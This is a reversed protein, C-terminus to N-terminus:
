SPDRSSSEAPGEGDLAEDEQSPDDTDGVDLLAAAEPDEALQALRSRLAARREPSRLAQDAVPEMLVLLLEFAERSFTSRVVHLDFELEDEFKPPLALVSDRDGKLLAMAVDARRRGEGFSVQVGTPLAAKLIAAQARMIRQQRREAGAHDSAQRDPLDSAM